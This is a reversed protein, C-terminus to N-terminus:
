HLYRLRTGKAQGFHKRNRQQLSHLIETPVDIVKGTTASEPTMM